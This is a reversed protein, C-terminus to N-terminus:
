TNHCIYYYANVYGNEPNQGGNLGYSDMMMVFFAWRLPTWVEKFYYSPM